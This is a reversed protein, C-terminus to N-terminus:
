NITAKGLLSMALMQDLSTLEIGLASCAPAPNIRDDHDLVGLMDPTIPPNSMLRQMVAALLLGLSLPLSITKNTQGLTTSARQRLATRTLSEPGALEIIGQPSAEGQFCRHVDKVIAQVVDLAYIPQELSSARFSFGYASAAQKRLAFSAYDDEGLVMPIRVLVASIKNSILIQEAAGRSALCANKAKADAGFLSLYFVRDVSSGLLARCLVETTKEHANYFSNHKTQKIIGVLHVVYRCPKVAQAMAQDDTYDCQLVEVQTLNNDKVLAELQIKASTSRVLARVPFGSLALLLKKGLNGNAGTILVTGPQLSVETM